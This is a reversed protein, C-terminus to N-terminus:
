GRARLNRLAERWQEDTWSLAGSRSGGTHPPPSKGAYTTTGTEIGSAKGAPEASSDEPKLGLKELDHKDSAARQEAHIRFDIEKLAFAFEEASMKMADKLAAVM